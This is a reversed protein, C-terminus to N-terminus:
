ALRRDAQSIEFCYAHHSQPSTRVVGLMLAAIEPEADDNTMMPRIYM